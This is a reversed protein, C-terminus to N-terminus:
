PKIGIQRVGTYFFELRSCPFIQTNLTQLVSPSPQHQACRAGVINDEDLIAAGTPVECSLELFEAPADCFQCTIYKAVPESGTEHGSKFAYDIQNKIRQRRQIRLQEAEAKRTAEREASIAAQQAAAAQAAARAEAKTKKEAALVEPPRAPARHNVVCEVTIRIDTSVTEGEALRYVLQAFQTPPIGYRPRSGPYLVDDLIIQGAEFLVDKENDTEETFLGTDNPAVSDNAVVSVKYKRM